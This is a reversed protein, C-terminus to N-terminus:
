RAELFEHQTFFTGMKEVANKSNAQGHVLLLHSCYQSCISFIFVPMEEMELFLFPSTYIHSGDM